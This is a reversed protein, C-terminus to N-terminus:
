IREENGIARQQQEGDHDIQNGHTQQERTVLAVADKTEDSDASIVEVETIIQSDADMMVDILYGNYFDGHKGRRADSDVVSLTRHGQGPHLVDETIKEALKRVSQLKQWLSDESANAPEAQQEIWHLIDLVQDLRSQLRVDDEAGQTEVRILEAQIQFGEAAEADVELITALMRERLQALLTLTTPVAINAIVHSADKLRLRDRVLNAERAYAVLRDFINQFGKAGLRGRFRTLLSSDPLRRQVPIQLFWRFLVDTGARAIVERDSLRCFYRLFELKLMRLPPIAPQGLDPCYYSKLEPVFSEWPICELADLLPHEQPLLRHYFLCDQDSMEELWAQDQVLM